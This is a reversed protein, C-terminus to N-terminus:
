VRQAKLQVEMIAKDDRILDHVKPHYIMLFLDFARGM